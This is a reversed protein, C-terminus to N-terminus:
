YILFEKIERYEDRRYNFKTSNKMCKNGHIRQPHLSRKLCRSDSIGNGNQQHNNRRKQTTQTRYLKRHDVYKCSISIRVTLPQANRQQVPNKFEPQRNKESNKGKEPATPFKQRANKRCKGNERQPHHVDNGDDCRRQNIAETQLPNIKRHFCHM